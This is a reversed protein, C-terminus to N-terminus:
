PLRRIAVKFSGSPFRTWSSSGSFFHLDEVAPPSRPATRPWARTPLVLRQGELVAELVNRRVRLPRKRLDKGHAYPCDFAIM